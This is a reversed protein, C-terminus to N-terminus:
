EPMSDLAVEPIGITLPDRYGPDGPLLFSSTGDPQRVVNNGEVCSMYHVRNSPDPPMKKYTFTAPYPELLSEPDYVTVKAELTADGIKRWREVTTVKFSYNPQGRMYEGAKMHKTHVILTDADWFGISDGEWLPVAQEDPIHGRNDTYIRRIEQMQEYLMWTQDPTPIFERRYPDALWRPMGAPLCDSLRDWEKDNLIRELKKEYDAQYRPTLKASSAGYPIYGHIGLVPHPGSDTDFSAMLRTYRVWIGTWDPLTEFIHKTGGQAKAKRAEYEERSSGYVAEQPQALATQATEPTRAAAPSHVGSMSTLNVSVFITLILTSKTKM